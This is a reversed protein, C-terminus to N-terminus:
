VGFHEEQHNSNLKIFILIKLNKKLKEHYISKKMGKPM